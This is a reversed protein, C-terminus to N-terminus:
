MCSLAVSHRKIVRACYTHQPDPKLPTHTHTFAMTCCSPQAWTYHRNAKSLLAASGRQPQLTATSMPSRTCAMAIANGGHFSQCVPLIDLVRQRLANCTAAPRRPNQREDTQQKAAHDAAHARKSSLMHSPPEKKTPPTACPPGM